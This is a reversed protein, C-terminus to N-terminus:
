LGIGRLARHGEFGSAGGVPLGARCVSVTGGIQGCLGDVHQVVLRVRMWGVSCCEGWFQRRWRNGTSWQDRLEFELGFYFESALRDLPDRLLTTVVIATTSPLGFAARHNDQMQSSMLPPPPPPANFQM